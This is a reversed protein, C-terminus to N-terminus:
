CQTYKSNHLVRRYALSFHGGLDNKSASVEVAQIDVSSYLLSDSPSGGNRYGELGIADWEVKYSDVSISAFALWYLHTDSVVYHRFVPNCRM